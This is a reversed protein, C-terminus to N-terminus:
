NGGGKVKAKEDDSRSAATPEGKVYKDWVIDRRERAAPTMTRPGLLDAPNAVMAALNHQTGGQLVFNRGLEAMRPVQVVYQWVNKPLM